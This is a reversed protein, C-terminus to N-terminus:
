SRSATQTERVMVKVLPPGMSQGPVVGRIGKNTPLSVLRALFNMSTEDLVQGIVHRKNDFSPVASNTLAFAREFCEDNSEFGSGGRGIGNAPISLLGAADHKRVTRDELSFSAPPPQPVFEDGVKSLGRSRAFAIAQSPVGLEISSGPVIYSVVGGRSLSVPARISGLSDEYDSAPLTSLGTDSVFSLFQQVGAPCDEGYLGLNLQGVEGRGTRGIEIEIRVTHTLKSDTLVPPPLAVPTGLLQGNNSCTPDSADCRNAAGWNWGVAGDWEGVQWCNQAKRCERESQGVAAENAHAPCGTGLAVLLTPVSRHLFRRRSEDTSDDTELPDAKCIRQSALISTIPVTDQYPALNLWQRYRNRFTQSTPIDYGLVKRRFDDHSSSLVLLSVLFSRM